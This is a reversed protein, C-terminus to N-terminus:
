LTGSISHVTLMTQGRTKIQNPVLVTFNDITIYRDAIQAAAVMHFLIHGFAEFLQLYQLLGQETVQQTYRPGLTLLLEPNGAENGPQFRFQSQQGPWSGGLLGSQTVLPPTHGQSSLCSTTKPRTSVPGRNWKATRVIRTRILNALEYIIKFHDIHLRSLKLLEKVEQDRIQVAILIQQTM